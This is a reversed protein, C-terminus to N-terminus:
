PRPPRTRGSAPPASEDLGEIVEAATSAAGIPQQLTPMAYSRRSLNPSNTAGVPAVEFEIERGSSTWGRESRVPIAARCWTHPRGRRAGNNQQRRRSDAHLASFRDAARPAFIRVRCRLSSGFGCSGQPGVTKLEALKTGLFGMATAPARNTDSKLLRTANTGTKRCGDVVFAHAFHSCPTAEM